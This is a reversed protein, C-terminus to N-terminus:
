YTFKVKESNRFMKSRFIPRLIPIPMFICKELKSSIAKTAGM